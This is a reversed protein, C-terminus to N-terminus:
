SHMLNKHLIDKVREVDKITEPLIPIYNMYFATYDEDFQTM